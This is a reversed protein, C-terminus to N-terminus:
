SPGGIAGWKTPLSIAKCVVMVIIKFIGLVFVISQRINLISIENKSGSKYTLGSDEWSPDGISDWKTPLRRVKWAFM